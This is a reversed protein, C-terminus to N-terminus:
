GSTSIRSFNCFGAGSQYELSFLNEDDLILDRLLKTSRCTMEYTCVIDILMDVITNGHNMTLVEFAHGRISMERIYKKCFYVFELFWYDNRSDNEM